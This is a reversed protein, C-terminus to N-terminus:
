PCGGLDAEAFGVRKSVTLAVAMGDGAQRLANEQQWARDDDMGM